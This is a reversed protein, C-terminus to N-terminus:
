IGADDPDGFGDCVSVVNSHPTYSRGPTHQIFFPVLICMRPSEQAGAPEINCFCLCLERIRFPPPLLKIHVLEIAGKRDVLALIGLFM